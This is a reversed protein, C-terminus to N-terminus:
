PSRNFPLTQLIPLCKALLIYLLMKHVRFPLDVQLSIISVSSMVKAYQTNSRKRPLHTNLSQQKEQRTRAISSHLVVFHKTM